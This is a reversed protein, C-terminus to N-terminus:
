GRGTKRKALLVREPLGATRHVAGSPGNKGTNQKCPGSCVNDPSAAKFVQVEVDGHRIFSEGDLSESTSVDVKFNNWKIGSWFMNQYM